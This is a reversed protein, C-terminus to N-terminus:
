SGGGKEEYALLSQFLHIVSLPGKRIALRFPGKDDDKSILIFHIQIKVLANM